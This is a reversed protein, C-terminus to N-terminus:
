RQHTTAIVGRGPGRDSSRGSRRVALYISGGGLLLALAAGAAWQRPAAPAPATVGVRALPDGVVTFGAWERAPAGRRIAALKATRLAEAVPAGRALAAYFDGVLRVTSRDGIRWQTAVVARAGAAVLPATLGEMGEGAIAVGGATRCASLVVLDADLRLGALDAPSLFGDEGESPALALATRALSVEDVLAHTALHIVRFGDLRAQKLWAESADDRLRVEAGGPAFRAVARAEEGSGTLRALGGRADFASRYTEAERSALAIREGAFEPDGLALM